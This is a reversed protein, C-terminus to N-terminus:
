PLVSGAAAAASSAVGASTCSAGASAPSTSMALMRLAGVTITTRDLKYTNLRGLYYKIHYDYKTSLRSTYEAPFRCVQGPLPILGRCRHRFFFGRWGSLLGSGGRLRLGFRRGSLSRQGFGAYNFTLIRSFSFHRRLTTTTAM